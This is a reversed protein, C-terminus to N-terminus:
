VFMRVTFTNASARSSAAKTASVISSCVPANRPWDRSTVIQTSVSCVVLAQMTTAVAPNLTQSHILPRTPTSVTAIANGSAQCTALIAPQTDSLTM